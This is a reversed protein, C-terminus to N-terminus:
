IESSIYADHYGLRIVEELFKGAIIENAYPGLFAKYMLRDGLRIEKLKCTNVVNCIACTKNAADKSDHIDIQVYFSGGKPTTSKKSQLTKNSSQVVKKDDNKPVTTDRKYIVDYKEIHTEGNQEPVVDNAATTKQKVDYVVVDRSEKQKPPPNQNNYVIMDRNQKLAVNQEDYDSGRGDYGVVRDAFLDSPYKKVAIINEDSIARKPSIMNVDPENVVDSNIKRPTTKQKKLQERNFEPVIKNLRV